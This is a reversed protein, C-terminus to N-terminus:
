FGWTGRTILEISNGAPDRFYISRGGRPWAIETEIPVGARALHVRWADLAAEDPVDFAVHGAGEAGHPPVEGDERRTAGADFTLILDRGIRFFVHRGEARGVLQLGLRRWFREIEDLNSAYLAAEHVGGVPPPELSM